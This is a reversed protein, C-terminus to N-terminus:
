DVLEDGALQELVVRDLPANENLKGVVWDRYRWKGASIKTIERDTDDGIVDVYGCWDLWHRGWREGFHPSALLGDVLREYADPSADHVFKDVEVASPLLGVLDLYTRRIWRRRDIEPSFSLGREALKALLFADIPTRARDRAAVTPVAPRKLRQFAWFNRADPAISSADSADARAEPNDAPAGAAIWRRMTALKQDDLPLEKKPPMSRDVIRELLLSKDLAAADLAPGSEGGKRMLGVTRLDLNAQRAELGHCKLCHQTLIPLIDEEFRPPAVPEAGRAAVPALLCALGIMAGFRIPRNEIDRHFWLM